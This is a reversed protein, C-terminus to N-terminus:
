PATTELLVRISNTLGAQMAAAPDAAAHKSLYADIGTDTQSPVGGLAAAGYLLRTMQSVTMQHRAAVTELRLVQRKTYRATGRLEVALDCPLDLWCAEAKAMQAADLGFARLIGKAMVENGRLNMHVGDTTLANGPSKKAKLIEQFDANLDALLCHKERALTRLFDNYPALKVNIDAALDETIVTATLIMVKVSAAQARDVIATINTKYQGLPVGRPGHWVDNVGCSLTMWAPKRSLVDQDLRALMNDSKHGSGGSGIATADIGNAKLGAMTLTVYGSASTGYATISDGLFVITQGSKVAFEPKGAEQAVVSRLGILVLGVMIWQRM